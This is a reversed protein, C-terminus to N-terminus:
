APTKFRPRLYAGVFAAPAHPRGPGLEAIVLTFLLEDIRDALSGELAPERLVTACRRRAVGGAWSDPYASILPRQRRRAFSPRVFRRTRCARRSGRARAMIGESWDYAQLVVDYASGSAL